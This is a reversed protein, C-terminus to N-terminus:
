MSLFPDDFCRQLYLIMMNCAGYKLLSEEPLTDGYLKKLHAHIFFLLLRVKRFETDKPRILEELLLNLFKHVKTQDIALDRTPCELYLQEIIRKLSKNLNSRSCNFIFTMFVEMPYADKPIWKGKKDVLYTLLLFFSTSVFTVALVLSLIALILSISRTQEYTISEVILRSMVVGRDFLVRVINQVFIIDNDIKFIDCVLEV